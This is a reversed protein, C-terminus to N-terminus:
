IMQGNFYYKLCLYSGKDWDRHSPLVPCIQSNDDLWPLHSGTSSKTACSSPRLFYQTIITGLSPQLEKVFSSLQSPLVGNQKTQKLLTIIWFLKLICSTSDMKSEEATTSNIPMQPVHFSLAQGQWLNQTLGTDQLTNSSLGKWGQGWIM